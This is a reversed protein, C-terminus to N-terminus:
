VVATAAVAGALVLTAGALRRATDGEGLLTGGAVVNTLITLQTVTSVATATALAYAGWVALSRVAGVAGVAVFERRLHARPALAVGRRRALPTYGALMTAFVVTGFVSPSTATTGFRSGLSLLTYLAAAAVALAPGRETLRRLPALLGGDTLVVYGGAAACAAAVVLPASLTTGLVVPELVAVGVPTTRRIPSALSLDVAALAELYVLFAVLEVVGIGLLVALTRASLSVGRTAAQWGLLPLTALLGYFATVYGLRVSSEDALLRKQLAYFVTKGAVAALTLALWPEIM